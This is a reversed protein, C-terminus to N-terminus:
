VSEIACMRVYVHRCMHEFVRCSLLARDPWRSPPCRTRQHRRMCMDICMDICMDVCVDMCMDTCMDVCMDVRMDVCMDACLDVRMNMCVAARMDM